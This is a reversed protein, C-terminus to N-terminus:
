KGVMFNLVYDDGSVGDRNGDLSNGFPDKLTNRAVFRYKGPALSPFKFKIINAAIRYDGERKIEIIKKSNLNKLEFANADNVSKGDFVNGLLLSLSKLSGVNNGQLELVKKIIPPALKETLARYSNVRGAGMQNKYSGNLHDINDCTGILQAAVQNWTWEPYKSWILAAVAAANPSAMSTGSKLTYRDRPSTSKIEDGPAMLDICHGYNSDRSKVDKSGAVVQTSGVLFIEHYVGRRPNQYGNNGGSNFMLMKSRYAYDLTALYVPDNIFSDIGYSTTIIKAGNEIAYTYAEAVLLSNWERKGGYFRIPMVKAGHATGVVGVGNNGTAAIIGTVHTGHGLGRELPSNDEDSFDWGNIDDVFGNNDDDIKNGAIEGPNTWINDKLDEHLLDAGDDTVAIVVGSGTSLEWADPNRMIPHRLQSGFLPDNMNMSFYERPDDKSIYIPQIWKVNEQARLLRMLRGVEWDDEGKMVMVTLHSDEQDMYSFVVRVGTTDSAIDITPFYEDLTSNRLIKEPTRLGITFENAMHAKLPAGLSTVFMNSNNVAFSSLSFFTAICISIIKKISSSM